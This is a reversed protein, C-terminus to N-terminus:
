PRKKSQKKGYSAKGKNSTTRGFRSKEETRKGFAKVSKRSKANVSKRGEQARLRTVSASSTKKAPLEDNGIRHKKLTTKIGKEILLLTERDKNTVFTVAKGVQGARGTRGIRHIYSKADEPIDYNFIHTVGEIDLGRAAIDTAVLYQLKLSRFLKMVKERKSQPMDGHLEDCNYMKEQMANNLAIARQKTRCFIIAMFPKEEEIVKFLADLKAEESTQIVIQEIEDLTINKNQIHVHVPKKLYKSALMKVGRPMTASFLMTQRVKSVDRLILGIDQSFGMDLMRDAEDLVLMKVKRLDVSKRRIHDILRGPTGIVVHISGKLKRIQQEVDQGGYASLVKIETNAILKKIEATIQIALERTPTMILAQVFSDEVKIRQIIPLLFALTKGTGTHSQAIIDNGELLVPISKRQVPTPETIGNQKLINVLENNVGLAIFNESM